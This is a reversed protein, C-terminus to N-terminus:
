ITHMDSVDFWSGLYIVSPKRPSRGEFLIKVLQLSVLVAAHCFAGTSTVNNQPLAETGCPSLLSGFEEAWSNVVCQYFTIAVTTISYVNIRKIPM